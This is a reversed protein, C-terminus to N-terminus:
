QCMLLMHEWKSIVCALYKNLAWKLWCYQLSRYSNRQKQTQVGCSPFVIVFLHLYNWVTSIHLCFYIVPLKSPSYLIVTETQSLPTQTSICFVPGDQPLNSVSCEPCFTCLTHHIHIHRSCLSCPFPRPCHLWLSLFPVAGIPGWLGPLWKVTSAISSNRPEHEMSSLVNHHKMPLFPLLSICWSAELPALQLHSPWTPGLTCLPPYLSAAELDSLTTLLFYNVRTRGTKIFWM